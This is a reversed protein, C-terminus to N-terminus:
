HGPVLNGARDLKVTYITPLLYNRDEFITITGSVTFLARDAYRRARQEMRQLNLCPLIALPADLSMQSGERTNVGNDTVFEWIGTPGIVLRGTRSVILTSEAMISAEVDDSTPRPEARRVSEAEKTAEDVQSLLEDVSPPESSPINSTADSDDDPLSDNARRTANYLADRGAGEEGEYPVTTFRTPLLYNRDRYVYVQGTVLFTVTRERSEALQIMESLRLCPHLFMPDEREGTEDTDYVFAWRQGAVPVIIGRRDILFAGEPILSGASPVSDDEPITFSNDPRLVPAVVGGAPPRQLEERAEREPQTLPTDDQAIAPSPSALALAFFTHSAILTHTRHM